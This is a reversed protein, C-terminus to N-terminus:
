GRWGRSGACSMPSTSISLTSASCSAQAEDLLHHRLVGALDLQVRVAHRQEVAELDFALDLGGELAFHLQRGATRDHDIRGFRQHGDVDVRRAGGFAAVDFFGRQLGVEFGGLFDGALQAQAIDAAQDHDVEDVHHRRLVLARDFVLHAFASSASRARTCTPRM